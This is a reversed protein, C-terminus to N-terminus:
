RIISKAGIQNAFLTRFGPWFAMNLLLYTLSVAFNNPPVFSSALNRAESQRRVIEPQLMNQYAPFAVRYDGNAQQLENALLYAGAMAMSAGQGALLTLCQCADGVLAVRDKHWQDLKIQSVADFFLHDAQKTAAVLQPVICGHHSFVQASTELQAPRGHVNLRESKFAYFVALKNNGISYVSVQTNPALHGYFADVRGLFNDVVASAVYFGLFNEFRSEAGWLQHRIQSHIGEAGIVLDFTHQTDDSLIVNVGDPQNHLHTISTGFRIPVATKVSEFIVDELDGRLLNLYRGNLLKRFRSMDLTARPRGQNDVFSLGNIPYHQTKVGLQEILGMKEAVDFGSGYFDIMYGKDSLDPRKEIVFPEFGHHHLWYALTLGAIGAGSILIKKNTTM